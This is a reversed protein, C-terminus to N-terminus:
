REREEPVLEVPGITITGGQVKAERVKNGFWLAVVWASTSGAFIAVGLCSWLLRGCLHWTLLSDLVVVPAALLMSSLQLAAIVQGGTVRM